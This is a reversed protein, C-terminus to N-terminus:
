ILEPSRKYAIDLLKNREVIAREYKGSCVLGKSDSAEIKLIVSHHEVNEVEIKLTITEGVLSPHEHFLDIKKGITIYDEPLLRDLMDTAADIMMLIISPTSILYDLTGENSSAHADEKNTEKTYVASLGKTIRHEITSALM